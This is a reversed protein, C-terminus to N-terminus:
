LSPNEEEEMDLYDARSMIIGTPNNVEHAMEAALEGLTVLKDARQLQEYHLEEITENSAKLNNVMHNFRTELIGIEDKKQAPLKVELNGSEVEDMAGIFQKLPKSIFIQLFLYIGAVLVIIMVLGLYYIHKAGTFFYQEAKTFYTDIDIFAINEGEEKHCEQCVPKNEITKLVSYSDMELLRKIEEEENLQDITHHAEAIGSINNDIETSDTAYLITGTSDFLRIAKINDNASLLTITKQIDQHDGLVMNNELGVMVVYVTTQILEKSRELFNKEYQRALFLSPIVIILLIFTITALIM